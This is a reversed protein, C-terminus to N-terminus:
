SEKSVYGMETLIYLDDESLNHLSSQDERWNWKGRIVANIHRLPAQRSGLVILDQRQKLREGGYMEIEQAREGSVLVSRLNDRRWMGGWLSFHYPDSSDSQILDLHGTTAYDNFGWYFRNQGGAPTSSYLRDFGLDFKLVGSHEVMYDYILKIAQTDVRRMLWHDDFLLIFIEQAVTDLVKFLSDSWRNAPYYEQRGIIRREIDSQFHLPIDTQLDEYGCIVIDGVGAAYKTWLYSFGPLVYTSYNSTMVIIQM